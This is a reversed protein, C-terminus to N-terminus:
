FSGVVFLGRGDASVAPVVVLASSSGRSGSVLGYVLTGVGIAGAAAFSGIAANGLTAQSRLASALSGCPGSAPPVLPCGVSPVAARETLATSGQSARLGVLVGGAIAAVGTSVAGAVIVAKSPGTASPRPAREAPPPPRNEPLRPHAWPDQTDTVVADEAALAPIQIARPASDATVAVSSKWSKRGPASAIVDYAGPDVPLATDWEAASVERGGWTVTFGRATRNAAAVSFTLRPIRAALADARARASPGREDGPAAVDAIARYRGWATAIKGAEEYCQALQVMAGVKGPQLKVVEELKPCARDYAKDKMAQVADDFLAQATARADQATARAAVSALALSAAACLLLRRPTSM